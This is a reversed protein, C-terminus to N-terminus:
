TTQSKFSPFFLDLKHIHDHFQCRVAAARDSWKSMRAWRRNTKDYSRGGHNPNHKAIKIDERQIKPRIFFSSIGSPIFKPISLNIRTIRSVRVDYTETRAVTWTKLRMNQTASLEFKHLTSKHSKTKKSKPINRTNQTCHRPGASMVVVIEDGHLRIISFITDTFNLYLASIWILAWTDLLSWIANNQSLFLLLSSTYLCACMM